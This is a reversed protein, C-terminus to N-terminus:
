SGNIVDLPESYDALQDTDFNGMKMRAAAGLSQWQCNAHFQQLWGITMLYILDNNRSSTSCWMEVSAGVSTRM